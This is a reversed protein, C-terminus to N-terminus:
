SGFICNNYIRNGVIRSLLIRGRFDRSSSVRREFLINGLLGECILVYEDQDVSVSMRYSSLM